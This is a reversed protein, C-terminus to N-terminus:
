KRKEKGKIVVVVVVVIPRKSWQKVREPHPIVIAARPSATTCKTDSKVDVVLL